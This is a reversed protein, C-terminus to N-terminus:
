AKLSGNKYFPRKAVKAAVKNKEDGFFIEVGADKSHRSMFGIGIGVQLGPSFTGSTVVGIEQGTADFIKHGARPSKRSASVFYGITRSLSRTLL